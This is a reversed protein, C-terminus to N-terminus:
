FTIAFSRNVGAVVIDELITGQDNRINNREQHELRKLDWRGLFPKLNWRGM